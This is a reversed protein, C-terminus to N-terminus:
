GGVMLPIGEKHKFGLIEVEPIARPFSCNQLSDAVALLRFILIDM